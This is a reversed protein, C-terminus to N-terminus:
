VSCTQRMSPTNRWQTPSKEISLGVGGWGWVGVGFWRVEGEGGGRSM